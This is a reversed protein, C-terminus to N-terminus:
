ALFQLLYNVIPFKKEKEEFKIEENEDDILKLTFNLEDGTNKTIFNYLSHKVDRNDGQAQFNGNVWQSSKKIANWNKIENM